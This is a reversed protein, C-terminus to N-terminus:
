RSTEPTPSSGPSSGGSTPPPAVTNFLNVVGSACQNRMVVIAVLCAVMMLIKIIQAFPARFGAPGRGIRPVEECEHEGDASM